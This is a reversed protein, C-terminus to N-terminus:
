SQTEAEDIPAHGLLMLVVNEAWLNAGGRSRLWAHLSARDLDCIDAAAWRDGDKARVLIGTHYLRRRAPDVTYSSLPEPTHGTKGEAGNQVGGQKTSNKM